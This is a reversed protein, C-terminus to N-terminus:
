NQYKSISDEIEELSQSFEEFGVMKAGKPGM